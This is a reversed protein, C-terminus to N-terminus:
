GSIAPSATPTLGALIQLDVVGEELPGIEPDIFVPVKACQAVDTVVQYFFVLNKHKAAVAISHYVEAPSLM